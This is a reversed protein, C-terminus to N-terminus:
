VTTSRSASVIIPSQAEAETGDDLKIKIKNWQAM